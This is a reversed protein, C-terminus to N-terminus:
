KCQEDEPFATEDYLSLTPELTEREPPRSRLTMWVNWLQVYAGVVIFMGMTARSVMYVHLEPLVRYLAEGNLWASGQILGAITLVVMFGTQGILMCWWQFNALRASYVPRGVLQPLVDYMVGVAIFGAFGLLGTHSHGVVWNTFHTLRQVSILAQVSGQTSVIFYFI